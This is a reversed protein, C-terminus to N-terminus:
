TLENAKIKRGMSFDIIGGTEPKELNMTNFIVLFKNDENDDEAEYITVTGTFSSDGSLHTGTITGNLLDNTTIPNGETRVEPLTRIFRRGNSDLIIDAPLLLNPDEVDPNSFLWSASEQWEKVSKAPLDPVTTTYLVVPSEPKCIDCVFLRSNPDVLQYCYIVGLPTVLNQKGNIEIVKPQTHNCALSILDNLSVFKPLNNLSTM